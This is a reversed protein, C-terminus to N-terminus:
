PFILPFAIFHEYVHDFSDFFLGDGVKKPELQGPFLVELGQDFSRFLRHKEAMPSLFTRYGFFSFSLLYASIIGTGASASFFVFPTAPLFLDKQTGPKTAAAVEASILFPDNRGSKPRITEWTGAAAEATKVRLRTLAMGTCISRFLITPLSPRAMRTLLPLALAQM